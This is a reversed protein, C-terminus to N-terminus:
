TRTLLTRACKRGEALHYLACARRGFQADKCLGSGDSQSTKNLSRARAHLIGDSGTHIFGLKKLNREMFTLASYMLLCM